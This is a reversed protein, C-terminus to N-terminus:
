RLRDDGRIKKYDRKERVVFNWVVVIALAAGDTVMIKFFTEPTWVELWLQALGLLAGVLFLGFGLAIPRTM